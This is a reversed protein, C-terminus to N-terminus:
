LNLQHLENFGYYKLTSYLELVSPTLNLCYAKNKTLNNDVKNIIINNNILWTAKKAVNNSSDILHINNPLIIQLEEHLLPFHTCGLIITDPPTPIKLWPDLLTRITSLAVHKGHLKAEALYVLESTGIQLFQYNKIFQNTINRIYNSKLTTPTVLLGIVGNRTLRTACKIAPVIGIIPCIFKKRLYSLSIISVTNCALIILDVHHLQKIATIINMVRKLIFQQSKEGYPFGENDFLYVYYAYPLMQKVKNYVSLGGVGSDFILITPKKIHNNFTIIKM